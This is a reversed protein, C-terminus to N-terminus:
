EELQVCLKNLWKIVLVAFNDRYLCVCVKCEWERGRM